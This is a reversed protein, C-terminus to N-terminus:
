RFTCNTIKLSELNVFKLSHTCKEFSIGSLTVVGKPSSNSEDVLQFLLAKVYQTGNEAADQNSSCSLIVDGGQGTMSLSHNIMVHGGAAPLSLKYKGSAFFLRKNICSPGSSFNLDNQLIIEELPRCSSNTGNVHVCRSVSDPSIYYDATCSLSLPVLSLICALLLQYTIPLWEM